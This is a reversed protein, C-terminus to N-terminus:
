YEYLHNNDWPQTFIVKLMRFLAQSHAQHVFYHKILEFQDQSLKSVKLMKKLKKQKKTFYKEAEQILLAENVVLTKNFSQMKVFDDIFLDAWVEIIDEIGDAVTLSNKFFEFDHEDDTEDDIEDDIEDDFKNNINKVFNDIEKELNHKYTTPCSLSFKEGNSFIQIM